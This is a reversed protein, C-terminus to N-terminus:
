EEQRARDIHQRIPYQTDSTYTYDGYKISIIGRAWMALPSKPMIALRDGSLESFELDYKAYRNLMAPSNIQRMTSLSSQLLGHRRLMWNKPGKQHVFREIWWRIAHPRIM